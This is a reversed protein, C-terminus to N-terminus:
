RKGKLYECLEELMGSTDESVKSLNVEKIKGQHALMTLQNLNNGIKSLQRNMEKMDDFMLIDKDLASLSVYQSINLKAKKAKNDIEQFERQTVRFGIFKSKRIVIM